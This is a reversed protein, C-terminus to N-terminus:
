IPIDIESWLYISLWVFITIKNNRKIKPHNDFIFRYDITLIVVINIKKAQFLLMMNWHKQLDSKTLTM